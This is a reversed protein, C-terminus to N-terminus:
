CYLLLADDAEIAFDVLGQGGGDDGLEEEEFCVVGLFWDVKVDVGGTARHRCTCVGYRWDWGFDL